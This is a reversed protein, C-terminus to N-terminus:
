HKTMLKHALQELIPVVKAAAAGGGLAAVICGQLFFTTSLVIALKKLPSLTM